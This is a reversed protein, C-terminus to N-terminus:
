VEQMQIWMSADAALCMPDKAHWEGEPVVWRNTTTDLYYAMREVPDYHGHLWGDLNVYRQLKTVDPESDAWKFQEHPTGDDTIM